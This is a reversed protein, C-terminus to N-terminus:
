HRAAGGGAGAAGGGEAPREAGGAAGGGAAGGGQAAGGGGQAQALAPLNTTRDVRHLGGTQGYAPPDPNHGAPVDENYEPPPTNARKIAFTSERTNLAAIERAYLAQLVDRVILHHDARAAIANEDYGRAEYTRLPAAVVSSAAAAALLGALVVAFHM